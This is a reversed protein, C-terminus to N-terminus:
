STPFCSTDCCRSIETKSWSPRWSARRAPLVGLPRTIWHSSAELQGVARSQFAYKASLQVARSAIGRGRHDPFVVLMHASGDDKLRVECGGLLTGTAAARIAGARRPSSHRWANQNAISYTRVGEVTSRKPYWGFRRAIEDDEGAVQAETDDPTLADLLVTGDRLIPVCSEASAVDGNGFSAKSGIRILLM